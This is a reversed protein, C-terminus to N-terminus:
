ANELNEKSRKLENFRKFCAAVKVLAKVHPDDEQRACEVIHKRGCLDLMSLEKLSDEPSMKRLRERRQAAEWKAYEMANRIM